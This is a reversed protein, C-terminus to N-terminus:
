SNDILLGTHLVPPLYIMIQSNGLKAKRLNAWSLDAKRLNARHLKAEHLYVDLIGKEILEELQEETPEKGSVQKHWYCYERGPLADLPCEWEEGLRIHYHHYRCRAM